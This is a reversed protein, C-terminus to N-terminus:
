IEGKGLIAAKIKIFDTINIKSDGNVDGAEKYENELNSKGLINQKVAIMDTINIKGDGNVDGTVVVSYSKIISSGDMINLRMGTGLVTAGSVNQNGKKVACYKGENIANLLNEARYGAMINSIMLTQQNINVVSSTVITPMPVDNIKFHVQRNGSYNGKGSITVTATGVNINDKYEVTYDTNRILKIDKDEVTVEPMFANGTYTVEGPESVTIEQTNIDRQAIIFSKRVEGTYNEKGTIIVYADSGANINNYYEITYDNATLRSGSYVVEVSPRQQEGTYEAKAITIEAESIDKQQEPASVTNTFAKIRINCGSVAGLDNWMSMPYRYYSQGPEAAAVSSFWNEYEIKGDVAYKVKGLSNNLTIVVSYKDGKVLQVPTTLKVNHIGSYVTSGAATSMLTGSEPNGDEVNKYINVEYDVNTTELEVSIAKLEEFDNKATFVNAVKGGSNIGYVESAITGDYQYNNDYYEDSESSVFDFVYATRSITAEYYSMWFYGYLSYGDYGWSNRILWAGDGPAETNFNEKPFTDDWGVISVAHGYGYIDSSYYSDYTYNMDAYDHYYIIGAAGYEKIMKKVEEPNEDMNITYANRLHAVSDYALEKDLGNEIAAEANEYPAASENVAGKWNALAHAALSYNGGKDLFNTTTSIFQNNDTLGGFIDTTADYTFYALHLESLDLSVKEQKLVSIEAMAISSFAWCSGYIGQDRVPPLTETIYKEEAASRYAYMGTNKNIAAANFDEPLFMYGAKTQEREAAAFVDTRYPILVLAISLFLSIATKVRRILKRM